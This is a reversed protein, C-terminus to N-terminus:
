IINTYLGKVENEKKDLNPQKYNNDLMQATSNM